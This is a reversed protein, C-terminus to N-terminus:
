KTLLIVLTQCHAIQESSVAGRQGAGDGGDGWVWRNMLGLCFTRNGSSLNLMLTYVLSIVLASSCLTDLLGTGLDYRNPEQLKSLTGM